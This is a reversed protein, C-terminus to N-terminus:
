DSGGKAHSMGIEVRFTLHARFLQEAVFFLLRGCFAVFHELYNPFSGDFGLIFFIQIQNM